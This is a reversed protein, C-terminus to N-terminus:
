APPSTRDLLPVALMTAQGVLVWWVMALAIPSIGAEGAAWTAVIAAGTSTWAFLSLAGGVNLPWWRRTIAAVALLVASAAFLGAWFAGGGYRDLYALVMIQQFVSLDLGSLAALANTVALAVTGPIRRWHMRGPRPPPDAARRIDHRRNNM